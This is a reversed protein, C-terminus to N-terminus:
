CSHRDLLFEVRLEDLLQDQRGRQLLGDLQQRHRGEFQRVQEVLLHDLVGHELLHRGLVLLRRPRRARCPPPRRRGAAGFASSSPRCRSRTSRRRSGRRRAVARPRLVLDLFQRRDLVRQRRRRREGIVELPLERQLRGVVRRPRDAVGDDAVEVVVPVQHRRDVLDRRHALPRGVLDLLRQPHHLPEVRDAHGGAVELLAEPQLQAVEALLARGGLLDDGLVQPQQLVVLHGLERLPEPRVISSILCCMSIM